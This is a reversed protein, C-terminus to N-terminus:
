GAARAPPALGEARRALKPRGMHRSRKKSRSRGEATSAGSKERRSTKVYGKM